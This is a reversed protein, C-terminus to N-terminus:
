PAVIPIIVIFVRLLISMEVMEKDNTRTLKAQFFHIVYVYERIFRSGDKICSYCVVECSSYLFMIFVNAVLFCKAAPVTAKVQNIIFLKEIRM